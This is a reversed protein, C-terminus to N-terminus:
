ADPNVGMNERWTFPNSFGLAGRPICVGEGSGSACAGQSQPSQRTRGISQRAVGLAHTACKLLASVSSCPSIRTMSVPSVPKSVISVSRTTSLWASGSAAAGGIHKPFERPASTPAGDVVRVARRQKVVFLWPAEHQPGHAVYGSHEDPLENAMRGLDHIPVFQKSRDAHFRPSM